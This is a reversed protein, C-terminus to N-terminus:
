PVRHRAGLVAVESSRQLSIPQAPGWCLYRSGHPRGRAYGRSEIGTGWCLWSVPMSSRTKFTNSGAEM